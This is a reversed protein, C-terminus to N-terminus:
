KDVACFFSEIQTFYKKIQQKSNKVANIKNTSFYKQFSQIVDNM